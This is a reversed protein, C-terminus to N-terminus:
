VQRIYIDCAATSRVLATHARETYWTGVHWALSLVENHQRVLAEDYESEGGMWKGDLDKVRRWWGDCEIKAEKQDM